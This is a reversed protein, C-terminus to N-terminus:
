DYRRVIQSGTVVPLAMEFFPANTQGSMATRDGSLVVSRALEKIREDTAGRSEFVDVIISMKQGSSGEGIDSIDVRVRYTVLEKMWDSM